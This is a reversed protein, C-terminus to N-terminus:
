EIRWFKKGNYFWRDMIKVVTWFTRMDQYWRWWWFTKCLSITYLWHMDVIKSWTNIVYFWTIHTTKIQPKKIWWDEVGHITNNKLKYSRSRMDIIHKKVHRIQKGCRQNLSQVFQIRDKYYRRLRLLRRLEKTLKSLAVADLPLFEMKHMIDQINKAKM